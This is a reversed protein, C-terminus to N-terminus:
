ARRSQTAWSSGRTQWRRRWVFAVVSGFTMAIPYTNTPGLVFAIGVANWNPVWHQKDVPIYRYKVFTSVPLALAMLCLAVIGSSTPIPLSSGSVRDLRCALEERRARRVRVRVLLAHQQVPASRSMCRPASSSPSSPASASRTSRVRLSAGLLHTANLDGLM